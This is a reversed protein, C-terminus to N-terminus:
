LRYNYEELINKNYKCYKCDNTCIGPIYVIVFDDDSVINGLDYVNSDFSFEHIYGISEKIIYCVYVKGQVHGKIVHNIVCLKEDDSTAFCAREYEYKMDIVGKNDKHKSSSLIGITSGLIIFVIGISMVVCTFMEINKISLKFGEVCITLIMAIGICGVGFLVMVIFSNDTMKIVM